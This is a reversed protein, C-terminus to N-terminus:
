HIPQLSFLIRSKLYLVPTKKKTKKKSLGTNQVVFVVSSRVGYRKESVYMSLFSITSLEVMQLDKGFTHHDYIGLFKITGKGEM